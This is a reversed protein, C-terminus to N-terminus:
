YAVTINTAPRNDFIKVFVIQIDANWYWGDIPSTALTRADRLRVLSSGDRFVRCAPTVSGILAVYNFAAPPCYSDYERQFRVSRSVTGERLTRQYIRTLRFQGCKEAKLTTGDDQYLLYGGTDIWRDPGPYCNITLPNEPLEGVWQELECFPLIAGARIFVPIQGLTVASDVLSGGPAPAGLPARNDVFTYWDAGQPLYTIRSTGGHPTRAAHLIPAVVVDDGLFFQDDSHAYATLDNPAGFFLPRVIPIGTQSCNYMADYYIQLMRYRLEVTKRCHSIFPEGYAYPEQFQKNYGDYHVRFWPLFSGLQMWRVFLEPDTIGGQVIDGVITASSSTCGGTAFGGVDSGSIPVGSIGLNLTIPLSVRLFEWSSANDGTWLGAYRQVGAYGGRSIIFNRRDPTLSALGEWTARLLNIAYANHVKARPLYRVYIEGDENMVEQALLLDHPLTKQPESSSAPCTLDQWVMDMGLEVVFHRHLEGWLKRVRSLGFDPYNGRVSLALISSHDYLSPPTSSHRNGQHYGYHIGGEYYNPKSEGFTRHDRILGDISILAERATYPVERGREDLPNSSVIPTINISLKFGIRHFEAFLERAHPFKIRSSTFNRYNDHFDVDIHLGDCPIRAARYANAARALRYRDFYGFAGQYLGLAHRPPMPSRGTLRTYQLLVDSVHEGAFFYYDLDNYVAGFSYQGIPHLNPPNSKELDFFSQSVNDLFIGTAYSRGRSPGETPPHPNCEVLLPISCYLPISSDFPGGGKLSPGSTYCYNDYNILTYRRGNKRLLEGTTAGIGYFFAGHAAQKVVAHSENDPRFLLGAGRSDAHILQGSRYVQLSFERLNVKIVIMSTDIVLMEDIGGEYAVTIACPGLDRSVVAVSSDMPEEQGTTGKARLRYSCPGIVDLILTRDAAKLVVQRKDLNVIHHNIAGLRRWKVSECDFENVPTFATTEAAHRLHERLADLPFTNVSNTTMSNDCRSLERHCKM